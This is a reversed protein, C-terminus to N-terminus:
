LRFTAPEFGAGAVVSLQCGVAVAAPHEHIQACADSLALIQALNGHLKVDLGPGDARPMLVIRDILSRLVEGAETKIAPDNLSATLDAIKRAYLKALNPHPTVTTSSVSSVRAELDVEQKRLEAIRTKMSADYFGDEIATLIQSIKARTNSLARQAASSDASQRSQLRRVEDNFASIFTETLEPTVLRNKLATLVREEIEQRKITVSNSCTGKSRRTACGYRDQAVITYGGGCMGCTLLGSLLFVRRHAVNLANGSEDRGMTRALDSRRTRTQQWVRDDVIRLDPVKVVEWQDQPNPRAVRRGTRPDKIYSCRNWELRGVYLSNNLVGTGREAQGRITTDSWPRGGPGPVGDANLDRAIKRPSDGAAYSRFIRRIVEAEEANIAREGAGDTTAPLVDYGYAKGGPIKGKLARGLQGRKTKDALDRVYHQAMMGMVATHIPTVEGVNLAYLRIGLFSLRDHLDATDALRRSLRDLSECLVVDFVKREADRLLAAYAPRGHTSGGSIAQDAYIETVSWGEQNARRRCLEVQDDISAVRQNDSSYRAYIM